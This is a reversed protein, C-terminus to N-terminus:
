PHTAYFMHFLLRKVTPYAVTAKRTTNITSTRQPRLVGGLLGRRRLRQCQLAQLALERLVPLADDAEGALPGVDLRDLAAVDEVRAAKLLPERGVRGARDAALTTVRLPPATPALRCRPPLATLALLGRLPLAAPPHPVALHLAQHAARLLAEPRAAAWVVAGCRRALAHGVGAVWDM